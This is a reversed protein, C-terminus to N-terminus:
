PHSRARVGSSGCGGTTSVLGGTEVEDCSTRGVERKRFARRQSLAARGIGSAQGVDSRGQLYICSQWGSQRINAADPPRILAPPTRGVGRSLRLVCCVCVVVLCQVCAFLDMGGGGVGVRQDRGNGGVDVEAQSRHGAEAAQGRLGLLVM